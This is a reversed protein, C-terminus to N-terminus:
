AHPLRPADAGGARSLRVELRACRRALKDDPSLDHAQRALELAREFDKERHEFHKAAEAAARAQFANRADALDLLLGIKEDHRGRKKATLASEWLAAFMEEDAMDAHIARRYLTAATEHDGARRLWRALGLLDAGHALAAQEPASFSPLVVGTLCALSVIDMVNHHFMPVLKFAQRTRLYEFYYYPILEGPLDGERELGLIEYELKMLRCSELRLKWLSRSGHLLDLHHLRELPNSQRRLRYRSDILPADYSKGNYTVLVDYWQLFEALAYLMAAEEDYDRMFFLRVRFGDPEITGVGILFACTGTGGALGTTETDLFVWRSPDHAPIDGKSIGELWTGPMEGLRSIEFTGHLKHNPYFRESLFYKGHPNELVQGDLCKEADYHDPAEFPATFDDDAEQVATAAPPEPTMRGGEIREIRRRLRIIDEKTIPTM